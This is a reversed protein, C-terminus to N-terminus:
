LRSGAPASAPVFTDSTVNETVAAFLHGNTFTGSAVIAALGIYKLAGQPINGIKFKYGAALTAVALAPTTFLTTAGSLKQGTLTASTQVALALTPTPANQTFTETVRCDIYLETSGTHIEGIDVAYSQITGTQIAETGLFLTGHADYAM